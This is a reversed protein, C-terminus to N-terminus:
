KKTKANMESIIEDAIDPHENRLCENCYAHSLQASTKKAIFDTSKLWVGKGKGVGHDDRIDGCICCVPLIQEYINIKRLAEQKELCRAIRLLMEEINCPKLLYDDAGLRLAEIASTMDGHGTIIIAGINPTQKKAELLVSLGDIGSMKLDTVVIDFNEEQLSAIAEEGSGASTVTYDAHELLEACSELIILNDDVLLIKKKKM